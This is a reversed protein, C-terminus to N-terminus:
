SRRILIIELEVPLALKGSNLSISKTTSRPPISICNFNYYMYCFQWLLWGLLINPAPKLSARVSFVHQSICIGSFPNGICFQCMVFESNSNRKEIWKNRLLFIKYLRVLNTKECTMQLDSINRCIQLIWINCVM